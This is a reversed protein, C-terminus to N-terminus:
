EVKFTNTKIFEDFAKRKIYRKHRIYGTWLVFPCDRPNTIEILKEKSIGTYESAEDITLLPKYELPMKTEIM